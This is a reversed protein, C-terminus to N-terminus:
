SAGSPKTEGPRKLLFSSSMAVAFLVWFVVIKLTVAFATVAVLELWYMLEVRFASGWNPAHGAAPVRPGAAPVRPTISPLLRPVAEYYRPYSEGQDRLLLRLVFITMGMFLVVFGVRSAMVGVGAAMLINGLYLPNRVYRYPGDSVLKETHVSIDRMVDAQLYSTGWTRILAALALLQAGCGFTIRYSNDTATVGRLKAVWDTLAIGFNVHDFAYLFFAVSFLAFFIWWRNRFEFLTAQM